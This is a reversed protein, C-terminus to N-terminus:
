SGSEQLTTQGVPQAGTQHEAEHAASAGDSVAPTSGPTVPEAEGRWKEQMSVLVPASMVSALVLGQGVVPLVPFVVGTWFVVLAAALLGALGRGRSIMFAVPVVCFATAPITAVIDGGLAAYLKPWAIVLAAIMLGIVVLRNLFHVHQCLSSFAERVVHFLADLLKFIFTLIAMVCLAAIILMAKLAELMGRFTRGLAEGNRM